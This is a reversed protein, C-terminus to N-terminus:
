GSRDTLKDACHLTHVDRFFDHNWHRDNKAKEWGDAFFILGDPICHFHPAYSEAPFIREQHQFIAKNRQHHGNHLNTIFKRSSRQCPPKSGGNFTCVHALDTEINLIQNRNQKEVTEAFAHPTNTDSVYTYTETWIDDGDSQSVLEGEQATETIQVEPQSVEEFAQVAEQMVMQATLLASVILVTKRQKLVM